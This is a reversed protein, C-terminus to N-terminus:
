INVDLIESDQTEEKEKFIYRYRKKSIGNDDFYNIQKVKYGVTINQTIRWSLYIIILTYGVSILGAIPDSFLVPITKFLSIVSLIMIISYIYQETNWIAYILYSQVLIGILSWTSIHNDRISTFLLTLILELAILAILLYNQLKIKSKIKQDPLHNLIDAIDKNHFKTESALKDMAEQRSYGERYLALTQMRIKRSSSLKM